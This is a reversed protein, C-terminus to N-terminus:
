GHGGTHRPEHTAELYLRKLYVGPPGRFLSNATRLPPASSFISAENAKWRMAGSAPAASTTPPARLREVKFHLAFLCYPGALRVYRPFDNVPLCVLRIHDEMFPHLASGM